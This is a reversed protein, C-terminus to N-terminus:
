WKLGLSSYKQKLFNEVDSLDWLNDFVGNNCDMLHLGINLDEISYGSQRNGNSDTLISGNYMYHVFGKHIQYGINLAKKRLTKECYSM